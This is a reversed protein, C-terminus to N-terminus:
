SCVKAYLEGKVGPSKCRRLPTRATSPARRSLTYVALGRKSPEFGEREAVLKLGMARKLPPGQQGERRYISFEALAPLCCRYQNIRAVLYVPLPQWGIYFDAEASKKNSSVLYKGQGHMLLYLSHFYLRSTHPIHTFLLSGVEAAICGRCRLAM